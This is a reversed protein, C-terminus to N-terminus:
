PKKSELLRARATAAVACHDLLRARGAASGAALPPGLAIRHPDRGTRFVPGTDLQAALALRTSVATGGAVEVDHRPDLARRRVLAAPVIDDNLHRDRERRSRESAADLHRSWLPRVRHLAG